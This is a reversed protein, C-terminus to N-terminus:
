GWELIMDVFQGSMAIHDEHPMVDNPDLNWVIAGSEELHWNYDDVNEQANLFFVSGVILLISTFITSKGSYMKSRM